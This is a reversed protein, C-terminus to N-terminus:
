GMLSVRSTRLFLGVEYAKQAEALAEPFEGWHAHFHAMSVHAVVLNEADNRSSKM